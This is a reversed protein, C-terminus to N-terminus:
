ATSEIDRSPAIAEGAHSGGSPDLGVSVGSRLFSYLVTYGDKLRAAVLRRTLADKDAPTELCHLREREKGSGVRWSACLAHPAVLASQRDHVTYFHHRGDAGVKHLTIIV